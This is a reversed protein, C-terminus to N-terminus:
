CMPPKETYNTIRIAEEITKYNNVMKELKSHEKSLISAMRDTPVESNIFFTTTKEIKNIQNSISTSLQPLTHRITYYRSM